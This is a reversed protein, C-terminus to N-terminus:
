NVEKKGSFVADYGSLDVPEEYAMAEGLYLRSAYLAVDAKRMQGTNCVTMYAAEIATNYDTGEAAFAITKLYPKLAEKDVGDIHSRLATPMSLRILSESWAGPRSALLRLSAAPDVSENPGDTYLRRHSAVYNGRNDYIDITFAGIGVVMEQRCFSPDSSYRHNKGICINGKKDTKYREYRICSFPKEPLPRLARVDLAFLDKCREGKRYHISDSREMCLILLDENYADLDQVKPVPVFMNRRLTGVMNEVNGKEHGSNPNCFVSEFGYHLEFRAFLDTLKVAGMVRKGIGAANDFICKGPVGGIFTFIRASGECVCEANEGFFVQMFGVNSYPFSVALYHIRKVGGYIELDDQGFDVHACAPRWVLDLYGGTRENTRQEKVYRQVIPYSGTFDTEKCLRKYIRKATHRQKHWVEKDEELWSDIMEKYPDLKSSRKEKTPIPPNFDNMKLYKRVTPESIGLAKSIATVRVGNGHMTKINRIQAMDIM